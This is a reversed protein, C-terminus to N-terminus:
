AYTELRKTAYTGTNKEPTLLYYFNKGKANVTGVLMGNVEWLTEFYLANDTLGTDKFDSPKLTYFLEPEGSGDAKIRYTHSLDAYTHYYIYNDSIGAFWYAEDGQLLQTEEGTLVDYASLSLYRRSQSEDRKALYATTGRLYIWSTGWHFHELKRTTSFEPDTLYYEVEDRFLLYIHDGSVFFSSVTKGEPTPYTDVAESEVNLRCLERGGEPMDHLWLVYKGVAAIDQVENRDGKVVLTAGSALMDVRYISDGGGGFEPSSRICYLQDSVANYAMMGDVFSFEGAICNGSAHTCLADFCFLHSTGTAKNIFATKTGIGGKATQVDQAEYLLIGPADVFGNQGWDNSYCVGSPAYLSTDIKAADAVEWMPEEACGMFSASLSFLLVTLVCITLIRKM